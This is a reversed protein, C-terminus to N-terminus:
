SSIYKIQGSIGKQNACLLLITYIRIFLTILIKFDFWLPLSLSLSRLIIFCIHQLINGGQAFVNLHRVLLSCGARQNFTILLDNIIYNALSPLTFFSDYIVSSGRCSNIICGVCVDRGVRQGERDGNRM